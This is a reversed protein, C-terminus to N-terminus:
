SLPNGDQDFTCQKLAAEQNRLRTELNLIQTNLNDRKSILSALLEKNKEIKEKKPLYM